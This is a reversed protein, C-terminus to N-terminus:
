AGPKLKSAMRGRADVAKIQTQLLDKYSDLLKIQEDYREKRIETMTEEFLDISANVNDGLSRIDKSDVTSAVNITQEKLRKGTEKASDKAEKIATVILEKLSEGGKRAEDSVSIEEEKSAQPSVIVASDSTSSPVMPSPVAAPTTTDKATVTTNTPIVATTTATAAKTQSGQWPSQPQGQLKEKQQQRDTATTIVGAKSRTQGLLRSTQLSKRRGRHIAAAILVAALPIAALSAAAAIVTRKNLVMKRIM